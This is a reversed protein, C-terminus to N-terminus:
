KDYVKEEAWSGKTEVRHRRRSRERRPPPSTLPLRKSSRRRRRSRLRLQQCRTEQRASRSPLLRNSQTRAWLRLLPQQTRGQRARAAGQQLRQRQRVEGKAWGQSAQGQASLCCPRLLRKEPPGRFLSPSLSQGPARLSPRPLQPAHLPKRLSRRSLARSPCRPGPAASPKPVTAAADGAEAPAMSPKAPPARSRARPQAPTRTRARPQAPTRTRGRYQVTPAPVTPAAEPAPTPLAPLAPAAPPAPPPPASPAGATAEYPGPPRRSRGRRVAGAGPAPPPPPGSSVLQMMQEDPQTISLHLHNHQQQHTRAYDMLAAMMQEQGQRNQAMAEGFQAAGHNLVQMAINHVSREDVQSVNTTTYNTVSQDLQVPSPRGMQEAIAGLASRHETHMDRLDSLAVEALEQRKAAGAAEAALRAMQAQTEAQMGRLAQEHTAQQAAMAESVAGASQRGRRLEDVVFTMDPVSTETERAVKHLELQELQANNRREEEDDLAEQVGRFQSIEPTNWLTIARRDPFKVKYDKKLVAEADFITPRERMGAVLSEYSRNKM